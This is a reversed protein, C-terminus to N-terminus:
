KKLHPRVSGVYMYLIKVLDLFLLCMHICIYIYVCIYIFSAGSVPNGWRCLLKPAYELNESPTTERGNGSVFFFNTKWERLSSPSYFVLWSKKDWPKFECYSPLKSRELRYFHLFEKARPIDRENASM